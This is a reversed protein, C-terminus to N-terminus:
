LGRKDFKPQNKFMKKEEDLKRGEMELYAFRSLYSIKKESLPPSGLKTELNRLAWKIDERSPNKNEMKVWDILLDVDQRYRHQDEYSDLGMVRYVADKQLEEGVPSSINNESTQEKPAEEVKPENTEPDIIKIDDSM